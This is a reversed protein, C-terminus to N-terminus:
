QEGSGKSRLLATVRHRLGAVWGLSIFSMPFFRPINQQRLRDRTQHQEGTMLSM